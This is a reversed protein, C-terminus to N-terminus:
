KTSSVLENLYKIIEDSEYLWTVKEGEEIRLCPVKVKGGETVLIQQNKLQKADVLVINLGQRRVERRVKVCFPCAAYQYLQLSKTLDDLKTQLAPAHRAKKPSFVFNLFLIIRGLVWRIIFM